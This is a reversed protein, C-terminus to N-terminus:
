DEHNNKWENLYNIKKNRNLSKIKYELKLAKSRTEASAYTILEVPRRSRTYKAGLANNNHEFVRRYVDTTCGTYYSGDVCEVIYVYWKSKSNNKMLYWIDRLANSRIRNKLFKSM